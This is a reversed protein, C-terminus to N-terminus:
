FLDESIEMTQISVEKTPNMDYWKDHDTLIAKWSYVPKSTLAEALTQKLFFFWLIM